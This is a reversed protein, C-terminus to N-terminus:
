CNRAALARPTWGAPKLAPAPPYDGEAEM